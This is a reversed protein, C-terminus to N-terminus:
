AVRLSRRFAVTMKEWESRDRRIHPAMELTVAHVRPSIGFSRAIAGAEPRFPAVPRVEPAVLVANIDARRLELALLRALQDDPHDRYAVYVDPRGNKDAMGHLDFLVGPSYSKIRDWFASGSSEYRNADLVRRSQTNVIARGGLSRALYRALGGTGLDEPHAAVWAIRRPNRRRIGRRTVHHYQSIKVKM